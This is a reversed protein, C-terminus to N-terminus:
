DSLQTQSKTVEHVDHSRLGGPKQTWPIKQFPTSSHTAVEKKLPDERGLSQVHRRCRCTPEKGRLWRPLGVIPLLIMSLVITVIQHLSYHLCSCSKYLFKNPKEIFFHTAKNQIFIGTGSCSVHYPFVVNSHLCFIIPPKSFTFCM